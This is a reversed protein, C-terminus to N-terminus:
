PAPITMQRSCLAFHKSYPGISAVAVGVNRAENYSLPKRNQYWRLGSQRLFSAM